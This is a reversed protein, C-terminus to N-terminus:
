NADIALLGALRAQHEIRNKEALTLVYWRFGVSSICEATIALDIMLETDPHIEQTRSRTENVEDWWKAFDVLNGFRPPQITM